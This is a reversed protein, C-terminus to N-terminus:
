QVKDVLVTLDADPGYRYGTPDHAILGDGALKALLDSAASEAIYLREGIRAANWLAARERRVLLLTELEAILPERGRLRHGGPAASGLALCTCANRWAHFPCFRDIYRAVLDRVEDPIQDSPM